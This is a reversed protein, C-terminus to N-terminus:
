KYPLRHRQATPSRRISWVPFIHFCFASRCIFLRIPRLRCRGLSIISKYLSRYHQQLNNLFKVPMSMQNAGVHISASVLKVKSPSLQRRFHIRRIKYDALNADFLTWVTFLIQKIRFGALGHHDQQIFLSRGRPVIENESGSAKKKEDPAGARSWPVKKETPNPRHSRNRRSPWVYRTGEREGCKSETLLRNRITKVLPAKVGAGNAAAMQAPQFNGNLQKTRNNIENRM